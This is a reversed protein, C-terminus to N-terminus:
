SPYIADLNLRATGDFTNLYNEFFVTNAYKIYLNKDYETFFPQRPTGPIQSRLFRIGKIKCAYTLVQNRVGNVADNLNTYPKLNFYQYTNTIPMFVYMEKTSNYANVINPLLKKFSFPQNPNINM